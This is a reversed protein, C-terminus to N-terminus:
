FFVLCWAPVLFWCRCLVVRTFKRTPSAHQSNRSCAVVLWTLLLPTPKAAYQGQTAAPQLHKQQLPQQLFAAALAAHKEAISRPSRSRGRRSCRQQQLSKL